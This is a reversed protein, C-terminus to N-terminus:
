NLNEMVVNTSITISNTYTSAPALLKIIRGFSWDFPYTLTVRTGVVTTTGNLYTYGREIKLLFVSCTGGSSSTYQWALTGASSASTGVACATVNAFTLYNAVADRVSTVSAPPSGSGLDNFQSAAIRAGDRAGNTLKDKLLWAGAFDVIGIAMVLLLPLVLAFEVLQSAESGRLLRLCARGPTLRTPRIRM